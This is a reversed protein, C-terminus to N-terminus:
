NILIFINIINNIMFKIKEYDGSELIADNARVIMESFRFIVKKLIEINNNTWNKDIALTPAVLVEDEYM